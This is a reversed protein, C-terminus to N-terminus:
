ARLDGESSRTLAATDNTTHPPAALTMVVLIIMALALVVALRIRTGTHLRLSRQSSQRLRIMECALGSPHRLILPPRMVCSNPATAASASLLARDEAPTVVAPDFSLNPAARRQLRKLRVM